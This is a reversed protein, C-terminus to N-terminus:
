IWLFVIKTVIKIGQSEGIKAVFGNSVCYLQMSKFLSSSDWPSTWYSSRHRHASESYVSMHNTCLISLTYFCASGETRASLLWLCIFRQTPALRIYVALELGTSAVHYSGQRLFLPGLKYICQNKELSNVIAKVSKM